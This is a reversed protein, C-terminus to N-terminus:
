ASTSAVNVFQGFEQQRFLPLAAAIGNLVGRLNVDVMLDWEEVKL